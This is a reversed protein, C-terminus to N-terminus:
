RLTHCVAYKTYVRNWSKYTKMFRHWTHIICSIDILQNIPLYNMYRTNLHQTKAKNSTPQRERSHQNKLILKEISQAFHSRSISTIGSYRSSRLHIILYHFSLM